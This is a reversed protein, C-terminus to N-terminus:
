LLAHSAADLVDNDFGKLYIRTTAESDHGMMESIQAIPVGSQKLVTAFSHRAVYTTIPTDVDALKALEKLSRNTQRLVKQVRHDRQQETQHFDSLIPFIYPSPSAAALERYYDLIEQAPALVNVNFNEKTKRRSYFIRDDRFDKWRLYAMDVFNIGRCYFSFLFYRRAQAQAPNDVLDLDKIRQLEAKSIARRQTEIRRFRAFNIGKYPDYEGAVVEEKRAYNILTKFTRLYVFFANPKTGRQIHHEEWRTLFANNVDSFSFDKDGRYAMLSKKTAHFIDAYGLRDTARLRAVWQDFYGLVTERTQVKGLKAKITELTYPKDNNEFDLIVKEAEHEAKDVARKIEQYLNHRRKPRNAKLDWEDVQCSIGLGIKLQKRDRTLRLLIPHEGNKLVKSTYLVAKVTTQMGKKPTFM